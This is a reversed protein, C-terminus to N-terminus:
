NTPRTFSFQNSLSGDANQVQLIVTQGREILKGAKKAILATTPNQEDNATKQKEGNLLVKAGDSFGTGNVFLKKGGISAGTIVPGTQVSIRSEYRALAFDADSLNPD